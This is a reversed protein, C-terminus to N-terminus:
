SEVGLQFFFAIRLVVVGLLSGLSVTLAERTSGTSTPTTSPWPETLDGPQLAGASFLFFTSFSFADVELNTLDSLGCLDKVSLQSALAEM